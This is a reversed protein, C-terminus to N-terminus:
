RIKISFIFNIPSISPLRFLPVTFIIPHLIRCEVETLSAIKNINKWEHSVLYLCVLFLECIFESNKLAVHSMAEVNYSNTEAKATHCVSKDVLLPAIKDSDSIISLLVTVICITNKHVYTIYVCIHFEWLWLENSNSYNM